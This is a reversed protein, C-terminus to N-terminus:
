SFLVARSDGANACVIMDKYMMVMVVTTGSMSSDIRSSTELKENTMRFADRIM